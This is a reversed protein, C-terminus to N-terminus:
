QDVNDKVFTGHNREIKVRPLNSCISVKTCKTFLSFVGGLSLGSYLSYILTMALSVKLSRCCTSIFCIFIPFLSSFWYNNHFTHNTDRYLNNQFNNPIYIKNNNKYKQDNRLGYTCDNDRKFKQQKYKDM